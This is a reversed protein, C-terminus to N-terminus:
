LRFPASRDVTAPIKECSARHAARAYLKGLFDMRVATNSGDVAQLDPKLGVCRDASPWDPQVGVSGIPYDPIIARDRQGVGAGSQVSGIPYDPIIARSGRQTGYVGVEGGQSDVGDDIGGVAGQKAAATDVPRNVAGGARFQQGFAAREATAMRPIRFQCAAIAQRRAPYDVRDARHPLPAVMTFRFQQRGAVTATELHSRRRTSSRESERRDAGAGIAVGELRGCPDRDGGHAVAHCLKGGEALDHKAAM